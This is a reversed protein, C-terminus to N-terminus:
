KGKSKATKTPFYAEAGSTNFPELVMVTKSSGIATEYKYTDSVEYIANLELATKDALRATPVGRVLIVITLDGWYIQGLMEKDGIIQVIQGGGGPCIGIDGVKLPVGITPTPHTKGSKLDAIEKKMKALNAKTAPSAKAGQRRLGATIEGIQRKLSEIELPRLRECKEAYARLKEPTPEGAAAPWTALVILAATWWAQARQM